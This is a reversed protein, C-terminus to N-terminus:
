LKRLILSFNNAPMEITEALTLGNKECECEIDALDRVGYEPSLGKLWSEFRENSESTQKGGRRFPGYLFLFGGPQLLLGAGRMLGQAAAWPSIHVLNIALIADVPGTVHVVWDNESVELALPALLNGAEVDAQWAEISARADEAPDSPIWEIGPFRSAFAAAHQGSGSAVELVRGRAPLRGQLVDLIPATNRDSSPSLLKRPPM